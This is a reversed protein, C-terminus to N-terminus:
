ELPGPKLEWRQFRLKGVTQLELELPNPARKQCGAGSMCIHISESTLGMNLIVLTKVSVQAKARTETGSM